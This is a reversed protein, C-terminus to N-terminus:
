KQAIKALEGKIRTGHPSISVGEGCDRDRAQEELHFVTAVAATSRSDLVSSQPRRRQRISRPPLCLYIRQKSNVVIPVNWSLAGAVESREIPWRAELSADITSGAAESM